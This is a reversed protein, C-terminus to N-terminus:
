RMREAGMTTNETWDRETETDHKTEAQRWGGGVLGRPVGFAIQSCFDRKPM